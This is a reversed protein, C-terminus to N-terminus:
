YYFSEMKYTEFEKITEAIQILDDFTWKCYRNLSKLQSMIDYSDALVISKRSHNVFYM